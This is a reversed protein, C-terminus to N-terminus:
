KKMGMSLSVLSFQYIDTIFLSDDIRNLNKEDHLGGAQINGTDIPM